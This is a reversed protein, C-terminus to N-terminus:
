WPVSVRLSSQLWRCQGCRSLVSIDASAGSCGFVGARGRSGNEAARDDPERRSDPFCSAGTVYARVGAVLGFFAGNVRSREKLHCLDKAHGGAPETHATFDALRLGM